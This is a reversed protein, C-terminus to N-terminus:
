VGGEFFAKVFLNFLLNFFAPFLSVAFAFMHKWRLDTLKCAALCWPWLKCILCIYLMVQNQVTKYRRLCM